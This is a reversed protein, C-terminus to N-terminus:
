HTVHDTLYFKIICVIIKTLLCPKFVPHYNCLPDKDSTSKLLLRFTVLEKHIFHLQNSNISLNTINMLTSFSLYANKLLCPSVLILILSSTLM